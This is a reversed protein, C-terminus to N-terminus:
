VRSSQGEPGIEGLAERCSWEISLRCENPGGALRCGRAEQWGAIVEDAASKFAARDGGAYTSKLADVRPTTKLGYCVIAVGLAQGYRAGADPAALREGARAQPPCSALLAFVLVAALLRM